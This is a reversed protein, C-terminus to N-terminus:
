NWEVIRLGYPAGWPAGSVTDEDRDVSIRTLASCNAFASSSISSVSAPLSVSQLKSCSEFASYNINKLTSPLSITTMATKYYFAYNAITEVGNPVSVNTLSNGIMYILTKGDATMIFNGQQKYSSGSAFNVTTVGSNYLFQFNLSTIDASVDITKLSSCGFLIYTSLNKLNAPLTLSSLKSLGNLAYNEISTIGNNLSLTTLKSCGYFSYGKLTTINTSSINVNTLNGGKTSFAYATIENLTAPANYTTGTGNYVVLNVPNGSSDKIYLSGNDTMYKTNGSEFEVTATSLMTRLTGADISTVTNPITVTGTPANIITAIKTKAFDYMIGNEIVYNSGEYTIDTLKTCNSFVNSGLSTVSEPINIKTLNTCGSFANSGISILTSPLVVETIGTCNAFANYAISTVGEPLVLKGSLSTCGAFAGDKIQLKNSAINEPWTISQLKKCNYFTYANIIKLNAPLKVDELASCGYFAYSGLSTISDPLSVTKLATCNQFASSNITTLTNPLEINTLKSCGLFANSDIKTLSGSGIIGARFDVSTLATNGRFANAEITQVDKSLKLSTIGANYYANAGIIKIVPSDPIELTTGNIFSLAYDSSLLKKNTYDYGNQLKAKVGIDVAWKRYNNDEESVPIGDDDVNDGRYELVGKVVRVNRKLYSKLSPIVDKITQGTVKVGNYELMDATAYLLTSDYASDNLLQNQIYIQLEEQAAKLDNKFTGESAKGIIGSNSISLIISTALMIMVIITIVLVIISIGKNKFM